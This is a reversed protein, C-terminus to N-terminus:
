LILVNFGAIRYYLSDPSLRCTVCTGVQNVDLLIHFMLLLQSLLSSPLM